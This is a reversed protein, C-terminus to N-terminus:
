AYTDSAVLDMVRRITQAAEAMVIPKMILASIGWSRYNDSTITESFGTTLIVPLGKRIRHLERTLESGTMHPMNQDTIVLDFRKPDAKFAELAEVSSTRGSVAYGLGKLMQLAMKVIQEEDDVFLISETGHPVESSVTKLQLDSTRALPLLIEFTTGENEKSAVHIAGRHKTIIGHVVSLGLGTGEGVAKTTFFPEFIREITNESMGHGTDSITLYSYDGASLQPYAKAADADLTIAKLTVELIGGRERMAHSANTCLNMIVQHIQSPDALVAGTRKDINEHIEISKSLSARLLKLAEKIILYLEIPKQEEEGQRSFTLIQKVLDKARYAAQIVHEIEERRGNESMNQLAIESYGLIPTLINNFDHAIGGALTGITELRQARRLQTELSQKEVEVAVSDSIDHSYMHISRMEPVGTFILQFYRNGFKVKQETILGEKSLTSIDFIELDPILDFVNAGLLELQDHEFLEEAAPNAMLVNGASNIRLIPAPSLQAFLAMSRARRELRRREAIHRELDAKQAQLELTRQQVRDELENVFSEVTNSLDIIERPGEHPPDFHSGKELSEQAATTLKKLPYITTLATRNWVILVLMIYVTAALFIARDFTDRSITVEASRIDYASHLSDTLERISSRVIAASADIQSTATRINKPAAGARVASEITFDIMFQIQRDILEVLEGQRSNPNLLASKRVELLWNRIHEGQLEVPTALDPVDSGIAVECAVVWREIDSAVEDLVFFVRSEETLNTTRIDFERYGLGVFLALAIGGLVCVTVLITISHGIRLHTKDGSQKRFHPLM